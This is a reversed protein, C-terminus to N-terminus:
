AMFGDIDILPMYAQILGYEYFIILELLVFSPPSPSSPPVICGVKSRERAEGPLGPLNYLQNFGILSQLSTASSFQTGFELRAISDLIGKILQGTARKGSLFSAGDKMTSRPPDLGCIVALTTGNIKMPLAQTITSHVFTETPAPNYDSWLGQRSKDWWATFHNVVSETDEAHM